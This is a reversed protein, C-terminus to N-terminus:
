WNGGPYPEASWWAVDPRHAWLIGRVLTEPDDALGQLLRRAADADMPGPDQLAWAESTGVAAGRRQGINGSPQPDDPEQGSVGEGEGSRTLAADDVRTEDQGSNRRLDTEPHAVLLSDLMRQALALNWRANEDRPDLRLAARTGEVAGSLLGFASDPEVSADVRTLLAVGLNYSGRQAAVPDASGAADRLHRDGTEEGQSLLATGLNYTAAAPPDSRSSAALYLEEAAEVEGDNFLRNGRELSGRDAWLLAAVAAAGILPARVRWRAVWAPASM